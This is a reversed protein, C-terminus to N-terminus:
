QTASGMDGPLKGSKKYNKFMQYARNRANKKGDSMTMKMFYNLTGPVAPAAKKPKDGSSASSSSASSSSAPADNAPKSPKGGDRKPAAASDSGIPAGRSDGQDKPSASTPAKRTPANRSAGANVGAAASARNSETTSVPTSVKGRDTSAKPVQVYRRDSGKGVWQDTPNGSGTPGYGTKPAGRQAKEAAPNMGPQAAKEADSLARGPGSGGAGGLFASGKYKSRGVRDASPNMSAM